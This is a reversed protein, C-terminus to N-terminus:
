IPVDTVVYWIALFLGPLVLRWGVEGFRIDALDKMRDSLEARAVVGSLACRLAGRQKRSERKRECPHL